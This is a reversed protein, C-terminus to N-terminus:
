ISHKKIIKKLRYIYIYVCIKKQNNIKLKIENQIKNLLTLIYMYLCVYM